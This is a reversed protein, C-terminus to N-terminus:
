GPPDFDNCLSQRERAAVPSSAQLDPNAQGCGDARHRNQAGRARPSPRGLGGPGLRGIGVRVRHGHFMFSISGAHASSGLMMMLVALYGFRKM